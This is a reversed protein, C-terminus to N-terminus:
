KAQVTIFIPESSYTWKMVFNLAINAMVVAQQKEVPEAKEDAKLTIHGTLAKGNLVIQSNKIDIAVGPPLTDAFPSALHQFLMDLTVNQDFGEAREITVDIKQSEGPKLVIENTNVKLARIDGPNHTAITHALVPWHGRGGGPQYIEQYTAATSVLQLPEQGEGMPQQATGRVEINWMGAAFGAPAHFVICGDKPKGPLIRGASATLGEPLNDVHLQIGGTFGNKREVNVFLVGWGGPAIQTKDTDLYLDFYPEAQTIEVFYIFDNGGRL